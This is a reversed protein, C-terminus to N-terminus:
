GYVGGHGPEAREDILEGRGGRFVGVATRWFQGAVAGDQKVDPGFVVGGPLHTKKGGSGEVEVPSLGGLM